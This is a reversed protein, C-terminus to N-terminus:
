KWAQEAVTLKVGNEAAWEKICHAEVGYHHAENETIATGVHEPKLEEKGPASPHYETQVGAVISDFGVLVIEEPKLHRMAMIVGCFGRTPVFGAEFITKTENDMKFKAITRDKFEEPHVFKSRQNPLTYLLYGCAPPPNHDMEKYPLNGWPGPIVVYDLRTGYDRPYQWLHNHMRVVPMQDIKYGWGRGEPSPGHGIIAVKNQMLFM